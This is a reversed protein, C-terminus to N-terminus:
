PVIVLRIAALRIRRSTGLAWSWLLAGNALIGVALLTTMFINEAPCPTKAGTPSCGFWSWDVSYSVLTWPMALSSLIVLPALLGLPRSRPQYLLMEALIWVVVSVVLLSYGGAFLISPKKAVQGAVRPTSRQGAM